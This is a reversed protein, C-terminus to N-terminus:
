RVPAALLASSIRWTSKSDGQNEFPFARRLRIRWQFDPNEFEGRYVGIDIGRHGNNPDENSFLVQGRIDECKFWCGFSFAGKDNMSQRVAVLSIGKGNLRVAHGLVGPIWEPKGRGAYVGGPQGKVANAIEKGETEDLPYHAMLGESLSAPLAAPQVALQREWAAQRAPLLEQEFAVIRQRIADVEATLKGIRPKQEYTLVPQGLPLKALAVGWKRLTWSASSHIGPDPDHVYLSQLREAIRRRDAPPIRASDLGGLSQILARRISVETESELRAALTQHDTGLKGLHHIIFSRLSPDPSFKLLSWVEDRYGLHVLAVAALSQRKWHADRLQKDDESLQHNTRALHVPMDAQMENLLPQKVAAAYPKLAEVLPSHEALEDAILIADTLTLPQDRLYDSLM